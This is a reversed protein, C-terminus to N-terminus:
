RAGGSLVADIAERVRELNRRTTFTWANKAGDYVELYFMDTGDNTAKVTVRECQKGELMATTVTRQKAM